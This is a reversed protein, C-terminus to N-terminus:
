IERSIDHFGIAGAYGREEEALEFDILGDGELAVKVTQFYLYAFFVVAMELPNLQKIVHRTVFTKRGHGLNGFTEQLRCLVIVVPFKELPQTGTNIEVGIVIGDIVAQRVTAQTEDGCPSLRDELLKKGGYWSFVATPVRAPFGQRLEFSAIQRIRSAAYQQKAVKLIVDAPSRWQDRGTVPGIIRMGEFHSEVKQPGAFAARREDVEAKGATLGEGVFVEPLELGPADREVRAVDIYDIWIDILM